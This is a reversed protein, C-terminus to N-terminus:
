NKRKIIENFSPNFWKNISTAIDDFQHQWNEGWEFAEEETEAIFLAHGNAEVRFKKDYPTITYSIRSMLQHYLEQTSYVKHFDHPYVRAM